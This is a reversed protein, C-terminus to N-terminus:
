TFMTVISKGQLLQWANRRRNISSTHRFNLRYKNHQSNNFNGFDFDIHTEKEKWYIHNPWSKWLFYIFLYIYRKLVYQIYSYPTNQFDWRYTQVWHIPLARLTLFFISFNKFQVQQFNYWVLYLMYLSSIQMNFYYVIIHMKKKLNEVIKRCFVLKKDWFMFVEVPHSEPLCKRM